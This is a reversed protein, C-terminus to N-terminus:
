LFAARECRKPSARGRGSGRTVHAIGERQRSFQRRGGRGTEVGRVTQRDLGRRVETGLLVRDVVDDARHKALIVRYRGYQEVPEPFPEGHAGDIVTPQRPAGRAHSRRLRGAAKISAPGRCRQQSGRLDCRPWRMGHWRARGRRRLAVRTVRSVPRTHLPANLPRQPIELVGAAQGSGIGGSRNIAGASEESQCTGRM